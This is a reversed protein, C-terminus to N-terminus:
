ACVGVEGCFAPLPNPGYGRHVRKATQSVAFPGGGPDASGSSTSSTCPPVLAVACRPADLPSARMFIPARGSRIALGAGRPAEPLRDLCKYFICMGTADAFLVKLSTKRRGFFVLLAGSRPKRGDVIRPASM